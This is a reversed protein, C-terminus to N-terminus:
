GEVISISLDDNRKAQYMAKDAKRISDDLSMGPKWHVVGISVDLAINEGIKSIKLPQNLTRYKQKVVMEVDDQHTLSTLVWIFEDGGVRAIFDSSRLKEQLREAIAMIAEDGADHGHVDNIKKLENLDIYALAVHTETREASNFIMPAQNFLASRNPIKTLHDIFAQEEIKKKLSHREVSYAIARAIMQTSSESKSLYDEAGAAIAHIGLQEDSGTLVIIPIQLDIAQLAELTELGESESLFLDLLIIDFKYDNLYMLADEVSSAYQIAYNYRQDRKLLESLLYFDDIDDDVSLIRYLTKDSEVYRSVNEMSILSM